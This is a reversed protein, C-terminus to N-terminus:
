GERESSVLLGSKPNRRRYVKREKKKSLSLSLVFSLFPFLCSDDGLLRELGRGEEEEEEGRFLFPLLACISKGGCVRVLSLLSFLSFFIPSIWVRPLFEYALLFLYIQIERREWRDRWERPARSRPPEKPSWPNCKKTQTHTTHAHQAHFTSYFRGGRSVLLSSTVHFRTPNSFGLSIRFFFSSLFSPLPLFYFLPSLAPRVVVVVM